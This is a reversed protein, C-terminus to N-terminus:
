RRAACWCSATMDRASTKAPRPIASAAVPARCRDTRLRRRSLQRPGLFPQGPEVRDDRLGPVDQLRAQRPDTRDSASGMPAAGSLIQQLSTLDYQDVMPHKALAIGVPPVIWLKRCRHEQILRLFMELDFRPLTLLCAGQSLYLNVLVELGYIHFFPLFAPTSEAPEIHANSAIQQINAVLNRHTLM